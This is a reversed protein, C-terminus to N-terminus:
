PSALPPRASTCRPDRRWAPHWWLLSPPPPRPPRTRTPAARMTPVARGAVDRCRPLRLGYYCLFMRSRLGRSISCVEAEELQASWGLRRPGSRRRRPQVGKAPNLPEPPAVGRAGRTTAKVVKRAITAALGQRGEPLKGADEFYELDAETFGGGKSTGAKSLFTALADSESDGGGEARWQRWKKSAQQAPRLIPSTSVYPHSLAGNADLRLDTRVTILRRLMAYAEGGDLDLMDLGEQYERQRGSKKIEKGERMARRWRDLNYGYAQVAKNWKILADTSKLNPFSLQAMTVGVCYMDFRDPRELQWLIPSLGAAIAPPPPEPTLTSMIFQEPPAYRPDLLFENPAYNIGVRLDAAAGLDILKLRASGPRGDGKSIIINQPKIDRHVLGVSHLTKAAALLQRM